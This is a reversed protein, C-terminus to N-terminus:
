TAPELGARPALIDYPSEACAASLRQSMPSNLCRLRRIPFHRRFPPEIQLPSDAVDAGHFAFASLRGFTKHNKLPARHRRHPAGFEPMRLPAARRPAASRFSSNAQLGATKWDSRRRRRKSRFSNWRVPAKSLGVRCFTSTKPLPLRRPTIIPSSLPASEQTFFARQGHSRFCPTM